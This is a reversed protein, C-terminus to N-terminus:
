TEYRGRTDRAANTEVQKFHADRIVNRSSYLNHLQENHLETTIFIGFSLIEISLGSVSAPFHRIHLLLLPSPRAKLVNKDWKGYKLFLIINILGGQKRYSEGCSAPITSDSSVAMALCRNPLCTGEAVFVCAGIFSSNSVTNEIRDM